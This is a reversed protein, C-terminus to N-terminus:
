WEKSRKEEESRSKLLRYLGSTLRKKKEWKEWRRRRVVLDEREGATLRKISTEDAIRREEGEKAARQDRPRWDMSIKSKKSRTESSLKVWQSVPHNVNWVLRKGGEELRGRTRETKREKGGEEQWLHGTSGGGRPEFNYKIEAAGWNWKLHSSTM